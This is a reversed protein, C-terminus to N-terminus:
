AANQIPDQSRWIHLYARDVEGAHSIKKIHGGRIMPGNKEVHAVLLRFLAARAGINNAGPAVVSVTAFTHISRAVSRGNTRSLRFIDAIWLTVNLEKQCGNM